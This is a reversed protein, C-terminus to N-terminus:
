SRSNLNLQQIAAESTNLLYQLAEIQGKIWAEQQVYEDPNKPDLALNLRRTALDSIQNQICCAQLSTLASGQLLEQESMEYRCFQSPQLTAM